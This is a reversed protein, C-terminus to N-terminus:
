ERDHMAEWEDSWRKKINRKIRSYYDRHTVALVYEFNNQTIALRAEHDARENGALRVHSPTWCLSVTKQRSSLSILWSQIKSVLPHDSYPREVAQLSSLSVTIITFNRNLNTDIFELAELIAYLEATFIILDKRIKASKISEGTVYAYGVGEEVKSCDTYIQISDAHEFLLHELFLMQMKYPATEKKRLETFLPCINAYLKWPPQSPAEYSLVDIGHIAM